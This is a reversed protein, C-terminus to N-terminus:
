DVKTYTKKKHKAGKTNRMVHKKHGAFGGIVLDKQYAFSMLIDDVTKKVEELSRYGNRTGDVHYHIDIVKPLLPQSFGYKSPGGVYYITALNFRKSKRTVTIPQGALMLKRNEEDLYPDIYKQDSKSVQSYRATLDAEEICAGMKIGDKEGIQIIYWRQPKYDILKNLQM